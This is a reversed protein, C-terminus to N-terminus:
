LLKKVRVSLIYSFSLCWPQRHVTAASAADPILADLSKQVHVPVPQRPGGSAHGLLMSCRPLQGDSKSSVILPNLQLHDNTSQTM